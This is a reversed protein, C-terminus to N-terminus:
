QAAGGFPRAIVLALKAEADHVRTLSLAFYLFFLAILPLYRHAKRRAWNALGVMRSRIAANELLLLLYAKWRRNM